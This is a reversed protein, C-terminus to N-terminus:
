TTQTPIPNAAALANGCLKIRFDKITYTGTSTGFDIAFNVMPYFNTDGEAGSQVYRTQM